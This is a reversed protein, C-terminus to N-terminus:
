SGVSPMKGATSHDTPCTSLIYLSPVLVLSKACAYMEGVAQPIHDELPVSISKAGTVVLGSPM